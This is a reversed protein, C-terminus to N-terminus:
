FFAALSPACREMIKRQIDQESSWFNAVRAACHNKGSEQGCPAYGEKKKRSDANGDTRPVFSSYNWGNTASSKHRCEWGDTPRSELIEMRGM